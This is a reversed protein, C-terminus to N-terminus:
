VGKFREIEKDLDDLNIGLIKEIENSDTVRSYYDVGNSSGDYKEVYSEVVKDGLLVVIYEHKDIVVTVRKMNRYVSVKLSKILVIRRNYLCSPSCLM